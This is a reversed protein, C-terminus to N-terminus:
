NLGRRILKLFIYLPKILKIIRVLIDIARAILPKPQWFFENRDFYENIRTESEITPSHSLPINIDYRKRNADKSKKDLTHTAYDGFGINSVLNFKPVICKGRNKLMLYSFQYDWTDIEKDYMRQFIQTWFIVTPQYTSISAPLVLKQKPWDELEADYNKWVRAWSAWGWILPYKCFAYDESLCIHDSGRSDASVLYISDDYNYKLLLEECYWFFSQSPLCDDELIIGRDENKFFWSIAESVAYKCGLNQDRFLTMIKCDWDINQIIYERVAKVREHEGDKNDRPGDAAIYLRPPKAQRISQFVQQTTELRNFVLFLVATKLPSPPIFNL